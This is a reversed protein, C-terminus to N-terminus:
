GLRGQTRLREFRRLYSGWEGMQSLIRVAEDRNGLRVRYRNTAIYNLVAQPTNRASTIIPRECLLSHYAAMYVVGEEGLYELLKENADIAIRRCVESALIAHRPLLAIEDGITIAPLAPLKRGRPGKSGDVCTLLQSSTAHKNLDTSARSSRHVICNRVKSFYEYLPEFSDLVDKKWGLRAYLSKPSLGEADDEDVVGVEIEKGSIAAFRDCEAKIGVCVDELSTVVRVVGMQAIFRKAPFVGRAPDNWLNKGFPEGDTPLQVPGGASRRQQRVFWLGAVIIRM